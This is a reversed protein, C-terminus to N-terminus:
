FTYTHLIQNFIGHPELTILMNVLLGRGSVALPRFHHEAFGKDMLTHPKAHWHNPFTSM